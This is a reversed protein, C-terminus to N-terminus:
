RSFFGRFGFCEPTISMHMLSAGALVDELIRRMEYRHLAGVTVGM